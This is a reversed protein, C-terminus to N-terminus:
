RETVLFENGEQMRLTMQPDRPPQDDDVNEGIWYLDYERGITALTLKAELLAFQRGICVRPGASFPMYAMDPLERRLTGDAWREPRFEDPDDYWREDRQITSIPVHVRTDEPVRYGGFEVPENTLRPLTHVPPFMRLTESIVRETYELDDVDDMTPPGDLADVEDHFRERVDDHNAIAWFAFTLATTTTDHGAFLITVMQDRLREDTLMGTDEVMGSERLGVLLSLLDEAESPDTPADGSKEDLLAQCEQEITRKADKFNRRSPTPMWDPLVYSSPVFWDHLNEAAERLERDGDLALERGLVTAALVDMTMDTLEAQLDFRDGDDWRSSRRRIQEVMGDAYGMVSRRRFLPQLLDRQQEWEEGEVTLLGEGFAIRFDETKRFTERENVLIKKAHDPHSLNVIEGPGPLWLRLVDDADAMRQGFEIPNLAIRLFYLQPPGSVTSPHPPLPLDEVDREPGADGAASGGADAAGEPDVQQGTDSSM